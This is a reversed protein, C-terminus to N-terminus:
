RTSWVGLAGSAIRRLTAGPAVDVVYIGDSQPGEDVGYVLSRSDPSWVRLSRAYQDFFPILNAFADSPIFTTLARTQGTAIDAVNWRLRLEDGQLAITQPGPAAGQTSRTLTLYAIQGGDPSWFFALVEGDALTRSNAGAADTVLLKGYAVQGLGAIEPRETVIYGIRDGPPSWAFSVAGNFPLVTRASSGSKDTAIVEGGDGARRAYLLTAGDPSWAPSLFLAPDESLSREDAGGLTRRGVRATPSSRRVGGVHYLMEKGDPSWDFYYPSGQGLEQAQTAGLSSLRLVISNGTSELFAIQRSDPSWYLYFPSVGSTSHLTEVGGSEVNVAQLASQLSSTGGSVRVYAIQRSDPSWTPLIYFRQPHPGGSGDATVARDDNGDPAVTHINGDNGQYAIRNVARGPGAITLGNSRVLLAGSGVLALCLCTLLLGCGGALGVWVWPRSRRDASM